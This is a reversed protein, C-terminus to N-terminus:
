SFYVALGIAWSLGTLGLAAGVALAGSAYTARLSFGLGVDWVLHRIGNCLHYFLCFSWIALLAYGLWSTLFWMSWAYHDPGAAATLLWCCLMAAGSALFIGTARHLISLGSTLQLRYVQLHPSLPRREHVGGKGTPAQTM